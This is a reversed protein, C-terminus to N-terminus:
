KTWEGKVIANLSAQNTPKMVLLWMISNTPEHLDDLIYDLRTLTPHLRRDYRPM